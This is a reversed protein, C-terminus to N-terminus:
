VAAFAIGMLCIFVSCFHALVHLICYVCRLVIFECVGCIKQSVGLIRSVYVLSERIGLGINAFVICM